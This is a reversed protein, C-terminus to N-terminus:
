DEMKMCSALLKKAKRPKDVKLAVISCGRDRAVVYLSAINVKKEKLLSSVKSLEGPEDKLRILFIESELVSYGNNKLLRAAREGDKLLFTLIAKGESSIAMVSDINIKATGLIYSIDAIVGVKDQAIVTMQKM